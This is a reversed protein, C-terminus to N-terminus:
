HRPKNESFVLIVFLIGIAIAIFGFFGGVMWSVVSFVPVGLFVVLAVGLWVRWMSTFWSM